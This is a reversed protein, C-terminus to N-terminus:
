HACGLAAVFQGPSMRYLKVAALLVVASAAIAILLRMQLNGM